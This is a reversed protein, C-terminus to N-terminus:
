EEDLHDSHVPKLSIIFTIPQLATIFNVTLRSQFLECHFGLLFSMIFMKYFTLFDCSIQCTWTKNGHRKPCTEKTCKFAEHHFFYPVFIAILLDCITVVTINLRMILFFTFEVTCNVRVTTSMCKCM